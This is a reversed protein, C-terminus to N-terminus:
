SRTLGKWQKPKVRGNLQLGGGINGSHKRFLVQEGTRTCRKLIHWAFKKLKRANAELHRDDLELIEAALKAREECPADHPQKGFLLLTAPLSTTRSIIRVHYEGLSARAIQMICAEFDNAMAVPTKDLIDAYFRPDCRLLIRNYIKEPYFVLHALAGVGTTAVLM